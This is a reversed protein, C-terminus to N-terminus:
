SEGGEQEINYPKVTKNEPKGKAVQTAGWEGSKVEDEQRQNLDDRLEELAKRFGQNFEESKNEFVFYEEFKLKDLMEQRQFKKGREFGKDVGKDIAEQIAEEADSKRVLEDEEKLMGKAISHLRIDGNQYNTAVEAAVQLDLGSSRPKNSENQKRLAEFLNKRYKRTEEKSWDKVDKESIFDPTDPSDSM